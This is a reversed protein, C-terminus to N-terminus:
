DVTALEAYSVNWPVSVSKRASPQRQRPAGHYAAVVEARPDSTPSSTRTPTPTRTPGTSHLSIQALLHSTALGAADSGLLGSRSAAAAGDGRRDAVPLLTSPLHAPPVGPPVRGQLGHVPGPQYLRLVPVSLVPNVASNVYGLWFFFAYLRRPVGCSACWGDVVYITFFGLWTGCLVAVIIATRITARTELHEAYSVRRRRFLACM